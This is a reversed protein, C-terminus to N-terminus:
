TSPGYEGVMRLLTRQRTRWIKSYKAANSHLVVESQGFWVTQGILLQTVNLNVCDQLILCLIKKLVTPSYPGQDLEWSSSKSSILTYIALGQKEISLHLIFSNHETFLPNICKRFTDVWTLKGLGQLSVNVSVKTVKLNFYGVDYNM